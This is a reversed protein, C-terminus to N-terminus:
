NLKSLFLHLWTAGKGGHGRTQDGVFLYISLYISFTSFDLKSRQYQRARNIGIRIMNSIAFIFYFFDFRLCMFERTLFSCALFGGFINYYDNKKRKWASYKLCPSKQSRSRKTITKWNFPAWAWFIREMPWRWIVDCM